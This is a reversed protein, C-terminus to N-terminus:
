FQFIANLLLGNQSLNLETRRLGEGTEFDFHNFRYALQLAFNSSINYQTGFILNWTFNQRAGINFGSVDGRFGFAWKESLALDVQAGILPEVLTRSFRFDRDISPLARDPIERGNIQIDDVEITQRLFNTRVGVIPAVTLRPYFNDGEPSNNLSTDVM